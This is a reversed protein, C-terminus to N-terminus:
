LSPWLPIPMGLLRRFVIVAFCALVLALAGERRLRWGPQALSAVLVLVVASLALGVREVAAFSLAAVLVALAPRWAISAAPVHGRVGKAALYAGVLFLTGSLVVPFYGPGMRAASGMPYGLGVVFGVAGFLMFLAGALVDREIRM